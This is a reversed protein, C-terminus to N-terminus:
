PLSGYTLRYAQFSAPNMEEAVRLIQSGIVKSWNFDYIFVRPDVSPNESLPFPNWEEGDLGKYVTTWGKM